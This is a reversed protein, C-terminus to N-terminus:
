GHKVGVVYGFYYDIDSEPIFAAEDRIGRYGPVGNQKDRQVIFVRNYYLILSRERARPLRAASLLLIDDERYYEIYDDCPIRMGRFVISKVDASFESIDVKQFHDTTHLHNDYFDLDMVDIFKGKSDKFKEYKNKQWQIYRKILEVIYSPLTRSAESALLPLDSLTGANTLEDISIGIAKAIAIVTSLRCDDISKYMISHLTHTSINAYEAFEDQTLDHEHMYHLIHKKIHYTYCQTGCTADTKDTISLSKQKIM